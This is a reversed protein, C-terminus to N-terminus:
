GLHLGNAFIHPVKQMAHMFSDCAIPKAGKKSLELGVAILVVHANYIYEGWAQIDVIGSAGHCIHGCGDLFCEALHRENNKVFSDRYFLLGTSNRKGTIM